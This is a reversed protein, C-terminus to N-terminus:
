RRRNTKKRRNKTKRRRTKGGRYQPTATSILPLAAVSSIAGVPKGILKAAAGSIYECKEGETPPNEESIVTHDATGNYNFCRFKYSEGSYGPYCQGTMSPKCNNGINTGDKFQSEKADCCFTQTKEGSLRSTINQFVGGKKNKRYRLSSM